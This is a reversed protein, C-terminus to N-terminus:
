EEEEKFDLDDKVRELQERAKAADKSRKAMKEEMSANWAYCHEMNKGNNEVCMAKAVEEDLFERCGQLTSRGKRVKYGKKAKMCLTNYNQQAYCGNFQPDLHEIEVDGMAKMSLPIYPLLQSLKYKNNTSVAKIVSDDGAHLIPFPQVKTRITTVVVSLVSSQKKDLTLPLWISSAFKKTNNAEVITMMLKGGGMEPGDKKKSTQNIVGTSYLYTKADAEPMCINDFDLNHFSMANYHKQFCKPADMQDSHFTKNCSPCFHSAGCLLWQLLSADSGHRASGNNFQHPQQAVSIFSLM